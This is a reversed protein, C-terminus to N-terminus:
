QSLLGFRREKHKQLVRELRKKRKDDYNKSLSFSVYRRYMIKNELRFSFGSM